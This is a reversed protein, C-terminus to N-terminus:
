GEDHVGGGTTTARGRYRNPKATEVMTRYDELLGSVTGYQAAVAQYEHRADARADRIQEMLMKAYANDSIASAIQVARAMDRLMIEAMDAAMVPAAQDAFRVAMGEDLRALSSVAGGLGAKATYDMFSKEEDTFDSAEFRFKAILGPHEANGILVDRLQKILGTLDVDQPQPKLCGDVGTTPCHYIRVKHLAGDSGHLLDTITLIAPVPKIENNPGDGDPAEVPAGVILSGTVSMMSELLKNDGHRFWGSVGEGKLARWVLNGQITQEAVEPANEQVQQIPGKGTSGTFAEFVDGFGEGVGVVANKMKNMTDFGSMPDTVLGQALQCSNSFLSNLEQIKKQLSEMAQGCDPCMSDLAVKFAYSAANAAIARYLQTLQEANIFSFSGAFLDIGGCGAEFSPPVFSILNANMIRNRAYISGGSLVGRRQGMHATPESVNVLAGFMDNMEDALDACAPTAALAGLLLLAPPLLRM